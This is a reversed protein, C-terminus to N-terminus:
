DTQAEPIAAAAALTVVGSQVMQFLVVASGCQKSVAKPDFGHDSTFKGRTYHNSFSWLYPSNIRPKLSQYGFGNYGELRYLIAPLSWDPLNALNKGRLADIASQEWSFPPHGTAPRGAPVRVTREKLPDGNHLHCNFNLSTEMSHVLAVFYWPIGLPEAVSEYRARNSLIGAIAQNVDSVRADSVTCTSFLSQYQRRVDDTLSFGM